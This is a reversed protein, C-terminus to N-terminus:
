KRGAKRTERGAKPETKFLGEQKVLWTLCETQRERMAKERGFLAKQKALVLKHPSGAHVTTHTVPLDHRDIINHIHRRREKALPWEHRTRDRARLFTSLEKCLECKCELPSNISWDDASRAPAAVAEELSSKVHRYLKQIGLAQVESPESAGRLKKLLEVAFVPPLETESAIILTILEDRAAPEDIVAATVLLTALDDLQRRVGKADGFPVPSRLEQVYRQRFAAAERALLWTALSKGDMGGGVFAEALSPLLTLWCPADYRADKGWATFVRRAWELGNLGILEVFKPTACSDLCHPGFPSLLGFATDADTSSAVSLVDEFFRAGTERLAATEWFPLLEKAGRRAEEIDGKKILARLEKIAWAPADKARIVFNRERPWMVVAARHYWRDVTNGYNGMYGEHESKFPDMEASARTFCIESQLPRISLDPATRGNLDVWHRLEIDSDILDELEYESNSRDESDDDDGYDDDDDYRRGYRRRGYGGNWGDEICSWCEHVDALALYIECNLSEATQALAEVRHRDANKLQSLRLSKQTYEHDLLYILRDPKQPTSRSYSPAIPTSFYAKVSKSLREVGSHHRLARLEPGGRFLLHYTLSVRYGSKVPKVEHHCDAYFAFLALDKSDRKRGRFIKKEGQHQVVLAGGEHECPLEVILSGVMDDSRESDQHSAFFQGPGYILMKDLVAELTGSKDLGLNEQIVALKSELVSRWSRKDIKVQRAGIEWTDRVKKDHLTQDRRGFPAPQAVACLKRATTASIPFRIEGMGEVEINLGTSECVLETAFSGEGEIAALSATVENPM